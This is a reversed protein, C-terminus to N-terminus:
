SPNASHRDLQGMVRRMMRWGLFLLGAGILAVVGVTTMGVILLAVGGVAGFVACAVIVRLWFNIRQRQTRRFTLRCAPYFAGWALELSRPHHRNAHTPLAWRGPSPRSDPSPESGQALAGSHGM